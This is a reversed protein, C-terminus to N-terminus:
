GSPTGEDMELRQLNRQRRLAFRHNLEGDSYSVRTDILGRDALYRKKSAVSRYNAYDHLYGDQAAGHRVKYYATTTRKLSAPVTRGLGGFRLVLKRVVADIWHLRAVDDLGQFYPIWGFLRGENVAGTIRENLDEVFARDFDIPSLMPLRNLVSSRNHTHWALLRAISDLFDVIKTRPVTVGNANFEYGLYQFAVTLDAQHFKPDAPDTTASLNVRQLASDVSNKVAEVRDASSFILVDDVFRWYGVVGKLRSVLGDFSSLYIDALANSIPLGQPVGANRPPVRSGGRGGGGVSGCTISGDILHWFVKSTVRRRLKKRLIDHDINDYFGKVDLKLAVTDSPVVKHVAAVSRVVENPLQHKVEVSFRDALYDKAARLVVRDRVTPVAIERPAKHKGKPLLVEKYATFHYTRNMCKRQIVRLESPLHKRLARPSIRDLGRAKSRLAM